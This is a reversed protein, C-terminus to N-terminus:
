PFTCNSKFKVWKSFQETWSLQFFQECSWWIESIVVFYVCPELVSIARISFSRSWMKLIKKTIKFKLVSTKFIHEYTRFSKHSINSFFCAMEQRTKIKVISWIPGRWEFTRDSNWIYFLNLAPHQAWAMVLWAWRFITQSKHQRALWLCSAWGAAPRPGTCASRAWAQAPSPGVQM